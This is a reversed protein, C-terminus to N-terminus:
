SLKKNFVKRFYEAFGTMEAEFEIPRINEGDLFRYLMLRQTDKDNLGPMCNTASKIKFEKLTPNVGDGYKGSPYCFHDAPKGTLSELIEKNEKIEKRAVDLDDSPFIHRHTHLQIDVGDDSLEKCQEPTIYRYCHNDQVSKFDSDLIESVKELLSEKEYADLNKDAYQMIGQYFTTETPVQDLEFHGTLECFPTGLQISKKPSFAILHQLAINFVIAQKQMYYSSVYLTWPFSYSKLLPAAHSYMGNWGDDFTIVTSYDEVQDKDLMNIGDDLKVINYGHKQLYQMRQELLSHRIFLWDFVLHEKDFSIGHYCLIRLKNKSSVKALYFLGTYKAIYYIILKIKRM